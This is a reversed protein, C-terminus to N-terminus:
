CWTPPGGIEVGYPARSLRAADATVMGFVAAIDADRSLQAANAYLNAIRNLSCDGFPTFPNLVNNSALSVVVGRAALQNAPAIGRPVLRDTERGM